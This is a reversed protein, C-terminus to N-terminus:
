LTPRLFLRSGGILVSNRHEASMAGHMMKYNLLDLLQNGTADNAAANVAESIDLSTGRLSDTANAPITDFALLYVINTRSIALNTSMLAFEPANLTTGPIIFDPPFYNFVTPSYFPNQGM